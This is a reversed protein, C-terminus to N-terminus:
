EGVTFPVEALVFYADDLMLRAYYDGPPLMEEGLDAETFTLSGAVTAGTYAFAYYDNYLDLAEAPYIGIWDWKLAPANDWTVTIDDGAAYTATDTSISPVAGPEVVWFPSRSLEEGDANVLAAAYEGAPLTASGFMVTGFFSAEYPPLAMLADDPASGEAPVIMLMDGNEGAPAHYQVVIPDGAEVRREQAAAFVPPVVPTVRVTSVVGRHDSPYPYIEIDVDQGGAEAVIQSDLVEVAGAAHIMDIRDVMEGENLRPVPYGPTWTMGIREAPDPHAVRYTDVFGAEELLLTVPWEVAVTNQARVATMAETWDLHSPTNFDGTLLVPTGAEILPTLVDLHPLLAAVRTDAENQLVEEMTAGDRVLYPGYPDSPLHVNGMAVVQGPAVQIYVYSGNGGPPDILPFRSIIQLRESVHQWGLADALRHANGYAEQLGVVDADAAQVAEVVKGFDVLEGGLWINFTMVRLEVPELPADQAAALLPLLLLALLAWQVTRLFFRSM